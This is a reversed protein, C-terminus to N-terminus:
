MPKPHKKAVMPKRVNCHGAKCRGTSHYTADYGTMQARRSYGADSNSSGLLSLFAFSLVITAIKMQYEGWSSPPLVISGAAMTAWLPCRPSRSKKSDRWGGFLLAILQALSTTGDTPKGFIPAIAGSTTRSITLPLIPTFCISRSIFFSSSSL